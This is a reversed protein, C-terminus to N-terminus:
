AMGVPEKLTVYDNPREHIMTTLEARLAAYEPRHFVNDMEDPDSALDYMEGEGSALDLTLKAEAARVIRLDLEIGTRSPHLKWESLAFRRQGGTGEILPRLSAGHLPRAPAVGGYDLFTPTIDVTSVPDRMVKGAPVGPGSVIMGVRLLGEYAMPGKLILGHDGLWDGHDSTYVVITNDRLGLDHLAILIRGVNHDILSIMSYYNAILHRLQEETQDPVRSNKLRHALMAPDNLKPTGELSARHWWPRRELDRTRHKPLDVQAPDHMRCWPEPADFPHHPDPFSIWMAFPQDAHREASRRMDNIARDATWTSNHWAPPLGSQITQTAGADPGTRTNYMEWKLDGLGDSHFWRDYHQGFPPKMPPNRNHGMVVLEVYDFGMYPGNWGAYRDTSRACEPRGTPTFTHMTSFHAKGIFATRYGVRALQGAFSQAGVEDDLDVGNDWVGHTQPLLGTLISARAPQCVVSPTICNPFRTGFRAMLDLHPTKIRRGEFGYCDGRQQDSTIVILNPRKTM